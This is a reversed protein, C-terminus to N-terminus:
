HTDSTGSDRKYPRIAQFFRKARGRMDIILKFPIICAARVLEVRRHRLRIVGFFLTQFAHGGFRACPLPTRCKGHGAGIEIQIAAYVHYLAGVLLLGETTLDHAGVTGGDRGRGRGLGLHTSTNKGLMGIGRAAKAAGNGLRHLLSRLGLPITVHQATHEILDHQM